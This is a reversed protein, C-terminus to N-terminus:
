IIYNANFDLIVMFSFKGYTEDMWKATIQGILGILYIIIHRFKM